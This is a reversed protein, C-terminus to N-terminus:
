FSVKFRLFAFLAVYADTDFEFNDFYKLLPELINKM